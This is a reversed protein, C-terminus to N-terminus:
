TQSLHFQLGLAIRRGRTVPESGHWRSSQFVLLDGRRLPVHQRNNNSNRGPQLYFTGGDFDEGPVSLVCLAQFPFSICGYIDRHPLNHGGIEYQLAICTPILQPPEASRCVDHFADLTSPYMDVAFPKPWVDQGHQHIQQNALPYLCIYLADRIQDLLIPLPEKLYTYEGSGFKMRAMKITRPRLEMGVGDYAKYLKQDAHQELDGDFMDLLRLRENEDMARPLIAYGGDVLDHWAQGGPEMWSAIHSQCKTSPAAQGAVQVVCTNLSQLATSSALPSDESLPRSLRSPVEYYSKPRWIRRSGSQWSTEDFGSRRKHM